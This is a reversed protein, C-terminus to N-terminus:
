AVSASSFRREARSSGGGRPRTSSRWPRTTAPLRSFQRARSTASCVGPHRRSARSRRAPDDRQGLVSRARMSRSTRRRRRKTGTITRSNRVQSSIARISTFAGSRGPMRISTPVVACRGRPRAGPAHRRSHRAATPARCPRRGAAPAAPCGRRGRRADLPVVVSTSRPRAPATCSSTLATPRTMRSSSRRSPGCPSSTCIETSVSSCFAIRPRISSPVETTSISARLPSTSACPWRASRRGSRREVRADGARLPPLPRRDARRRQDVLRGVPEVRRARGELHHHRQGRQLRADGRRRARHVARAM